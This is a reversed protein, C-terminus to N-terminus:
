PFKPPALTILKLKDLINQKIEQPTHGSLTNHLKERYKVTASWINKHPQHLYYVTIILPINSNSYSWQAINHNNSSYQKWNLKNLEDITSPLAVPSPQATDHFHTPVHYHQSRRVLTRGKISGYLDNLAKQKTSGRGVVPTSNQLGDSLGSVSYYTYPIYAITRCTSIYTTKPTLNNIELWEAITTKFTMLPVGPLFRVRMEQTSVM